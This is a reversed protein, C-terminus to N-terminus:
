TNERREENILAKVLLYAAMQDVSLIPTHQSAKSKLAEKVQQVRDAPLYVQLLAMAVYGCDFDILTIPKPKPSQAPVTPTPEKKPQQPKINNKLRGLDGNIAKQGEPSKYWARYCSPCKGRAKLRTFMQKCSRCQKLNSVDQMGKPAKGPDAPAGTNERDKGNDEPYSTSVSAPNNENMRAEMRKKEYM